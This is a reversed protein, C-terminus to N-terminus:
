ELFDVDIDYPFTILYELARDADLNEFVIKYITEIIPIKLNYFKALGVAVQLTGVGEALEPMEKEIEEKNKGQGLLFGFTFNRSNQSTATAVLDGIGATGFFAANTAGFAKGFYVMETLGRTILMAQLNKGLGKGTLIGSGIAIVNKLAGAVEAGLIDNSGFVHFKPSQLVKKGVEIVEKFKSGILTATPQGAIIEVALNPGSLCGVRTVCTEQHIVESMTAVNKRTIIRDDPWQVDFGKTGHILFHYPKLHPGFNKMLERFVSSPVIPFILRCKETVEEPDSTFKIKQLFNSQSPQFSIENRSYLLVESNFSLLQSIALGFSGAGLVGVKIKEM